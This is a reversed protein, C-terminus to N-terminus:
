LWAELRSFIIPPQWLLGPDIITKRVRPQPITYEPRRTPFRKSLLIEEMVM